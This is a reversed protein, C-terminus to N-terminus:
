VIKIKRLDIGITDGLENFVHYGTRKLLAIAYEKELLSLNVSEYKIMLPKYRKFNIMKLIEYDFGETDIQFYDIQFGKFNEAIINTLTDADVFNQIIDASEINTKKHHNVDLSAIGKVWDPYKGKAKENIKYISVQKETPHVAKNVAIIKSFNSYNVKLEEYYEKVPEVVVGSTDRKIVFDYLFDFSVGDNAGVQIFSFKSNLEYNKELIKESSIMRKKLYYGREFKNLIKIIMLFCSNILYIM